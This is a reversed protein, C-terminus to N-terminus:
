YSFCCAVGLAAILASLRASTAARPVWIGGATHLILVSGIITALVAAISAATMARSLPSDYLADYPIEVLRDPLVDLVLLASPPYQFKINDEFFVAYLDRGSRAAARAAVMPRLSDVDTPAALTMVHGVGTARLARSRTEGQWMLLVTTLMAIL